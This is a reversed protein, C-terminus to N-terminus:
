NNALTQTIISLWLFFDIQRYIEVFYNITDINYVGVKKPTIFIELFIAFRIFCYRIAALMCHFDCANQNQDYNINRYPTDFLTIGLTFLIDQAGCLEKNVYM